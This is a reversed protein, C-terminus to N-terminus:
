SGEEDDTNPPTPFRREHMAALQCPQCEGCRDDVPQGYADAVTVPTDCRGFAIDLLEARM